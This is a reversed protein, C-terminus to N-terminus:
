QRSLLEGVCLFAGLLMHLAPLPRVLPPPRDFRWTRGITSRPALGKELRYQFNPEPFILLEGCVPALIDLFAYNKYVVSKEM